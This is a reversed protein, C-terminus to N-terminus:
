KISEKMYNINDEMILNPQLEASFDVPTKSKETATRLQIGLHGHWIAASTDWSVIHDKYPAFKEFEKPHKMGLIHLKPKDPFELDKIIDERNPFHLYSLGVLDIKDNRLFGVLQEYTKPICMVKYGAEKYVPLGNTTGDKCVVYDAGVMKAATLMDEIPLAYGLEFYGNDLYKTANLRQAKDRYKINDLVEHALLMAYGDSKITAWGMLSTPAIHIFVM